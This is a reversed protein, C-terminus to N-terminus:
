EVSRWFLLFDISDLVNGHGRRINYTNLADKYGAREGLEQLAKRLGGYTWIAHPSIRVGGNAATVARLLPVDQM